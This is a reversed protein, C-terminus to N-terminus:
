LLPHDTLVKKAAFTPTIWFFLVPTLLLRM